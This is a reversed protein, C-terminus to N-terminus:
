CDMASLYNITALKDADYVRIRGGRSVVIRYKNDSSDINPCYLLSGSQGRILGSPRFTFKRINGQITYNEGSSYRYLVPTETANIYETATSSHSFIIYGENWASDCANGGSSGCVSVHLNSNAAFRRALWFSDLIERVDTEMQTERILNTFSPAGLSFLVAAIMLVMLLEVLTFGAPKKPTWQWNRYNNM